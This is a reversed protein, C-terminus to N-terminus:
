VAVLETQTDNTLRQTQTTKRHTHSHTNKHKNAPYDTAGITTLLLAPLQDVHHQQWKRKNDMCNSDRIRIRVLPNETLTIESACSALQRNAIHENIIHSISVPHFHM